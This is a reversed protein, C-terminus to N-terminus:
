LRDVESLRCFSRLGSPIDSDGHCFPQNRAQYKVQGSELCGPTWSYISVAMSQGLTTAQSASSFFHTLYALRVGVKQNTGMAISVRPALPSPASSSMCSRPRRIESTVFYRRAVSNRSCLSLTAMWRPFAALTNPVTSAVVTV